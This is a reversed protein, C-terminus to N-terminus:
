TTSVNYNCFDAVFSKSNMILTFVQSLIRNASGFSMTFLPGFQRVQDALHRFSHMRTTEIRANGGFFDVFNKCFQKLLSEAMKVHKIKVHRFFQKGNSTASYVRSHVDTRIFFESHNWFFCNSRWLFALQFSWQSQFSTVWGSMSIKKLLCHNWTPM